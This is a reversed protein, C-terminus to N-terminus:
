AFVERLFDLELQLAEDHLAFGEYLDFHDFEWEVHNCRPIKEATALIAERSVGQDNRGSIMLVPCKINAASDIPNYGATSLLARAPMSNSWSPSDAVIKMYDRHWGPWDMVAFGQGPEAILAVRHERGFLSFLRDLLAHGLSKLMKGLSMSKAAARGSCFPVQSIVGAVRQDRAATVLVHGGAFSSGWLAVRQNDISSLSRLYQLASYWDECHRGPHVYQRPQGQSEGFSRYDFSFVAYGAEVFARIFSGTGMQREAGFGQGMLIVPPDENDPLYLCASCAVGASPFIHKQERM